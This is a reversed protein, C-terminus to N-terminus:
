VKRTMDSLIQVSERYTHGFMGASVLLLYFGVPGGLLPTLCCLVVSYYILMLGLYLFAMLGAIIVWAIFYGMKNVRLLAWWESVRFAAMLDDEAVFHTTAMPLPIVGLVTALMGVFMALFMIAMSVLFAIAWLGENGAQITMFISSIFYLAMGGFTIIGGPLLCVLSVLMTRLGDMALKGLDDWVPLTLDQGKIAQRMIWLLYGYVFILPLIPILFGTTTLASGIIFRKKWDPGRFPFTFIERISATTITDETM